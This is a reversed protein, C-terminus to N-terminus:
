EVNQVQERMKELCTKMEVVFSAISADNAKSGITNVERNMEQIIFDLKRGIPENKEVTGSFQALHSELRTIEESVDCKDSFIAIETLVRSEDASSGTLEKIKKELRTRYQKVVNPVYANVSSLATTFVGAHSLLDERLKEGEARRMGKLDEMAKMFAQEVLQELHENEEETEEVSILDPRQLFDQLSIKGDLSFKEKLTHIAKLYEDALQWDVMVKRHVLGEGSVTIFVDVKGRKIYAAMKKKLKEEIKVLQKPTRINLECFRHNVSKMEVTVVHQGSEQKASGFGTMSVVM